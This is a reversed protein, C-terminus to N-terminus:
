KSDKQVFVVVYRSGGSPNDCARGLTDEWDITETRTLGVLPGATFLITRTWKNTDTM